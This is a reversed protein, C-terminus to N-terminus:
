FYVYCFDFGRKNKYYQLSKQVESMGVIGYYQVTTNKEQSFDYFTFFIM